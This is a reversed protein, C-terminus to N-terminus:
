FEQLSDTASSLELRNLLSLCLTNSVHLRSFASLVQTCLGTCTGWSLVAWLLNPFFSKSNHHTSFQCYFSFKDRLLLLDTATFLWSLINLIHLHTTLLVLSCLRCCQYRLNRGEDATFPLFLLFFKPLDQWSKNLYWFDASCKRKQFRLWFVNSQSHMLNFPMSGTSPQAWSSCSNSLGFIKHRRRETYDTKSFKTFQRYHIHLNQWSSGIFVIHVIWSEM